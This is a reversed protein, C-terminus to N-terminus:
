AKRTRMRRRKRWRGDAHRERTGRGGERREGEEKREEVDKKEDITPYENDGEKRRRKM